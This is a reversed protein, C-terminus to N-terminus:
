HGMPLPVSDMEGRIIVDWILPVSDNGGGIIADWFYHSATWGGSLLTGPTTAHQGDRRYDRGLLLSVSDM